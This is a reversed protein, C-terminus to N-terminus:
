ALSASMKRLGALALIGAGLLFVSAPEPASVPTGNEAAFGTVGSNTTCTSDTCVFIHAGADFGGSNPTLVSTASPLPCQPSAVMGLSLGTPEDLRHDAACPVLKERQKEMM